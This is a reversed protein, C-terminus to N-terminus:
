PSEEKKRKYIAELIAETVATIGRVDPWKSPDGGYEDGPEAKKKAKEFIMTLDHLTLGPVINKCSLKVGEHYDITAEGFNEKSVVIEYGEKRLDERFNQGMQGIFSLIKWNGIRLITGIKANAEDNM